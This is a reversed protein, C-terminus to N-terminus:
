RYTVDVTDSGRSFALVCGLVFLGEGAYTLAIVIEFFSLCSVRPPIDASSDAVSRRGRKKDGAAGGSGGGGGGGGGSSKKM